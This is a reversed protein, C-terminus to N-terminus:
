PAGRITSPLSFTEENDVISFPYQPSEVIQIGGLNELALKTEEPMGKPIYTTGDHRIGFLVNGNLDVIAYAYLDSTMSKFNETFIGTTDRAAEAERNADIAAAKAAAAQKEAESGTTEAFDAAIEAREAIEQLGRGDGIFGWKTMDPTEGSEHDEKAYCLSRGINAADMKRYKTNATWDGTMRFGLAGLSKGM